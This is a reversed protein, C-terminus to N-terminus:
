ESSVELYAYTYNPNLCQSYYRSIGDEGTIPLMGLIDGDPFKIWLVEAKSKPIPLETLPQFKLQLKM